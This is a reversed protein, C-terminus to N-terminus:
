RLFLCFCLVSKFILPGERRSDIDLDSHFFIASTDDSNTQSRKSNLAFPGQGWVHVSNHMHFASHGFHKLPPLFNPKNM